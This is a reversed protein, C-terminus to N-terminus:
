EEEEGKEARGGISIKEEEAEGERMDEGKDRKQSMNTGRGKRKGEDRRKMWERNRRKRKWECEGMRVRGWATEIDCRYRKRNERGRGEDRM